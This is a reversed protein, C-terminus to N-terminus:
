IQQRISAAADSDGMKDLMTAIRLWLRANRPERIMLLNLLTMARDTQGVRYMSEARDLEEDASLAQSAPASQTSPAIRDLAALVNRFSGPRHGPYSQLCYSVLERLKPNEIEHRRAYYLSSTLAELGDSEHFARMQGHLDGNTDVEFPLRGTLM